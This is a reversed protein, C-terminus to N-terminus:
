CLMQLFLGASPFVLPPLTFLPTPIDCIFISLMTKRSLLPFTTDTSAPIEVSRHSHPLIQVWLLLLFFPNLFDSRNNMVTQSWLFEQSSLYTGPKCAEPTYFEGWLCQFKLFAILLLAKSKNKLFEVAAGIGRLKRGVSTKFCPLM